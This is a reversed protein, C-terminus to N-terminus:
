VKDPSSASAALSAWSVSDRLVRGLRSALALRRVEV